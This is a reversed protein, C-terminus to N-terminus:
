SFHRHHDGIRRRTSSDGTPPPTEYLRQAQLYAEGEKLAAELSTIGRAQLQHNLNPHNISQTFDELM